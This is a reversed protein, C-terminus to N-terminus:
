GTSSATEFLQCEVQAFADSLQKSTSPEHQKESMLLQEEIPMTLFETVEVDEEAEFYKVIGSEKGLGNLIKELIEEEKPKELKKLKEDESISVASMERPMNSAIIKMSNLDNWITSIDESLGLGYSMAVIKQLKDELSLRENEVSSSCYFSPDDKWIERTRAFDALIEEKARGTVALNVYNSGIIRGVVSVPQEQIDSKCALSHIEKERLRIWSLEGDREEHALKNVADLIKSSSAPLLESIQKLLQAYEFLADKLIEVDGFLWEIFGFSAAALFLTKEVSCKSTLSSILDTQEASKKQVPMIQSSVGSWDIFKSLSLATTSNTFYTLLNQVSFNEQYNQEAIKSECNKENLSLKGPLKIVGENDEENSFESKKEGTSEEASLNVDLIYTFLKETFSKGLIHECLLKQTNLCSNDLIEHKAQVKDEQKAPKGQWETFVSASLWKELEDMEKKLGRSFVAKTLLDALFPTENGITEIKGELFADIFMERPRFYGGSFEECPKALINIPETRPQQMSGARTNEMEPLLKIGESSKISERLRIWAIMANETEFGFQLSHERIIQDIASNLVKSIHRVVEAHEFLAPDLLEVNGFLWEIFGFSAMASFLVKNTEFKGKPGSNFELTEAFNTKTPLIQSSESAWNVFEELSFASSHTTFYKLLNQMSFDKQYDINPKENKQEPLSLKAPLKIVDDTNESEDDTVDLFTEHVEDDFDSLASLKVENQANKNSSTELTSEVDFSRGHVVLSENSGTGNEKQCNLSNNEALLNNGSMVIIDDAENENELIQVSSIKNKVCLDNGYVVITETEENETESVEVDPTKNKVNLNRGHVVITETEENETESVEVDPTKNKVNLNRGYVVITETEENETESVEVDPTKNKVNLNRGHVVITETEENETESVEVDPTKNKVNLNRGYVVITETEENETESVEVDPTKNKVNLNRGYVVITKTEENETESVEVDPTKNKVNLNRGHVVITETEENETESVEVDPTKNKVNLNRGHVVITETEENETESVEVDPTKNQVNLNRGYVVITETEENETESVEVDPTESKFYMNRGYIVINETRNTNKTTNVNSTKLDVNKQNDTVNETRYEIAKSYLTSTRNSRKSKKNVDNHSMTVDLICMLLKRGFGKGFMSEKKMTSKHDCYNQITDKQILQKEQNESQNKKDAKMEEVKFWREISALDCNLARSLIIKSMKDAAFSTGNIQLELKGSMFDQMFLERPRQFVEPKVECSLALINSVTKGPKQMFKHRTTEEQILAKVVENSKWSERLRTWAISSSDKECGLLIEDNKNVHEIESNLMKAIHRVVDAYEFLASDLADVNGILWEIFGFAAAALYMKKELKCKASAGLNQEYNESFNREATLIEGETKLWEIVKELPCGSLQHFNSKLLDRMSFEDQKSENTKFVKPYKEKPFYGAIKVEFDDDDENVDKKTEKSLIENEDLFYCVLKQISGVSEVIKKELTQRFSCDNPVDEHKTKALENKNGDEFKETQVKEDFNEADLWKQIDEINILQARSMVTETLHKSVYSVNDVQIGFLGESFAQIFLERVRHFEQTPEEKGSGLLVQGTEKSNQSVKTESAQLDAKIESSKGLNGAERLRKWPELFRDTSVGLSMIETKKAKEPDSGVWAAQTIANAQVRLAELIEQPEMKLWDIIGTAAIALMSQLLVDFTKLYDSAQNFTEVLLTEVKEFKENLQEWTISGLIGAATIIDEQAKRGNTSRGNTNNTQHSSQAMKTDSDEKREFATVDNRWIDELTRQESPLGEPILGCFPPLITVNDACFQLKPLESFNAATEPELKSLKERLRKWFALEENM